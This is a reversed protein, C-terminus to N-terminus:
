GRQRKVLYDVFVGPLMVEDPAILGAEYIESVEAIVLDAATAMIPNFCRATGHFVLNGNTDARDAYVLAVRAKLAKELLYEKEDITIKPKGEEIITGLGTPTLFGGLGAGGARIREVLTGQPNLEVELEKALYQKVTLPNAGIHSCILKKIQCGVIMRGIGMEPSATDNTIVTLNKLKRDAIEAVIEEPIGCNAFGGIMVADNDSIMDVAQKVDIVIAM